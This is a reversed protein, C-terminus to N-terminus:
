DIARKNHFYKSMTRELKRVYAKHKNHSKRMRIQEKPDNKDSEVMEHKEIIDRGPVEPHPITNNEIKTM